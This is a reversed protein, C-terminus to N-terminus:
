MLYERGGWNEHKNAWLKFSQLEDKLTAWSWFLLSEENERYQLLPSIGPDWRRYGLTLEACHEGGNSLPAAELLSPSLPLLQGRHAWERRAVTSCFASLHFGSRAAKEEGTKQTKHSMTSESKYSWFCQLAALSCIGKWPVETIGKLRFLYYLQNAFIWSETSLYWKFINVLLRAHHSM